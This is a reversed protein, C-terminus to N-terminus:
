VSYNISIKSQALVFDKIEGPIGNKLMAKHTDILINEETLTIGPPFTNSSIFNPIFNKLLNAAKQLLFGQFKTEWTFSLVGNKFNDFKLEVPIEEPVLPIGHDYVVTLKFGDSTGVLNKMYEKIHPAALFASENTTLEISAM